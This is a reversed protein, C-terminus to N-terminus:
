MEGRSVVPARGHVSAFEDFRQELFEIFVSVAFDRPALEDFQDLAQEAVVADLGAGLDEILEVGVV